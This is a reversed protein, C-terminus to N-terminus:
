EEVEPQDPVIKTVITKTAFFNDSDNEALTTVFIGGAGLVASIIAGVVGMDLSAVLSSWALVAAFFILQAKRLMKHTKESFVKM